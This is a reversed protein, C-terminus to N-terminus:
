ATLATLDISLRNDKSFISAVATAGRHLWSSRVSQSGRTARRLEGSVAVGVSELLDDHEVVVVVVVPCKLFMCSPSPLIFFSLATAFSELMKEESQKEDGRM